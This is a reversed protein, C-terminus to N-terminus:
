YGAGGSSPATVDIFYTTSSAASGPMVWGIAQANTPASTVIAGPTPSLFLRAGPSAAIMGSIIGRVTVEVTASTAGGKSVVGVAPRYSSNDADAKYAKGDAGGISVVDGTTLTEGATASFRVYKQKWYAAQAPAFSLALFALCIILIAFVKHDRKM